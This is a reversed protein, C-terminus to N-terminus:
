GFFPTKSRFRKELSNGFIALSEKVLNMQVPNNLRTLIRFLLFIATLALLVSIILLIDTM